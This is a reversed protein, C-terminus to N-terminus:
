FISKYCDKGWTSKKKNIAVLYTNDSYKYLNNYIKLAM